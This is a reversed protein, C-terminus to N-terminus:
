IAINHLTSIPFITFWQITPCGIKLSVWRRYTFYEWRQQHIGGHKSTIIELRIRKLWM